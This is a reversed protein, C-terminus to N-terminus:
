VNALKSQYYCYAAAALIPAVSYCQISLTVMCVNVKLLNLWNFLYQERIHSKCNLNQLM